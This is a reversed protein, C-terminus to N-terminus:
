AAIDVVSWTSTTNTSVTSWASTTNTSVTYQYNYAEQFQGNAYIQVAPVTTNANVAVDLLLPRGDYTFQFQQRV